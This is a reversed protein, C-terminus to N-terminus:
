GSGSGQVRGHCWVLGMLLHGVAKACLVRDTRNVAILRNWEKLTLAAIPGPRPPALRSL